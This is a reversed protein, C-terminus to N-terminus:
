PTTNATPLPKAESVGTPTSTVCAKGPRVPRALAATIEPVLMPWSTIM